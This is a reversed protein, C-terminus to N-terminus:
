KGALRQAQGEIAQQAATRPDYALRELLGPPQPAITGWLWALFVVTFVTGISASLCLRITSAREEAGTRAM